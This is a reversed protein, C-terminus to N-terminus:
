RETEKAKPEKIDNLARAAKVMRDLPRMADLMSMGTDEDRDFWDLNVGGKPHPADFWDTFKTAEAKWREGREESESLALTLRDIEEKQKMTHYALFGRGLSGSCWPKDNTVVMLCRRLDEVAAEALQCRRNLRTNTARSQAVTEESM